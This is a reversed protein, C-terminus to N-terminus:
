RLLAFSNVPLTTGLDQKMYEDHIAKTRIRFILSNTISISYRKPNLMHDEPMTLYDHLM